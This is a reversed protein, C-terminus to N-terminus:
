AAARRDQGLWAQFDRLARASLARKRAQAKETGRMRKGSEAVIPQDLPPLLGFNINM